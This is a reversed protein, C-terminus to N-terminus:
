NPQCQSVHGRVKSSLSHAHATIDWVQTLWVFALNGAVGKDIAIRDGPEMSRLKRLCSKGTTARGVDDDSTFLATAGGVQAPISTRSHSHVM